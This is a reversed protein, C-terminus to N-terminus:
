DPSLPSWIQRLIARSVCASIISFRDIQLRRFVFLSGIGLRDVERLNIVLGIKGRRSSLTRYKLAIECRDLHHAADLLRVARRALFFRLEESAVAAKAAKGFDEIRAVFCPALFVLRKAADQRVLLVRRCAARDEIGEIRRRFDGFSDALPKGAHAERGAVDQLRRAAAPAEEVRHGFLHTLLAVDDTDLHVSKGCADRLRRMLVYFDKMLAELVRAKGVAAEIECDAVHGEAIRGDVAVASVFPLPKQRM